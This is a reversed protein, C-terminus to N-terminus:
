RRGFSGGGIVVGAQRSQFVAPLSLPLAAFTKEVVMMGVGAIEVDESATREELKKAARACPRTFFAQGLPEARRRNGRGGARPLLGGGLQSGVDIQAFVDGQEAVLNADAEFRLRQEVPTGRRRQHV